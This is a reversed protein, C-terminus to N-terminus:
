LPHEFGRERRRGSFSQPPPPGGSVEDAESDYDPDYDDAPEAMAFQLPVRLHRSIFPSLLSSRLLELKM